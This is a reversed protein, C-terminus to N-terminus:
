SYTKYPAMWLSYGIKPGNKSRGLWGDGIKVWYLSQKLMTIDSKQFGVWRLFDSIMEPHVKYFAISAFIMVGFVKSM